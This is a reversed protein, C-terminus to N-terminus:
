LGSLPKTIIAMSLRMHGNAQTNVNALMVYIISALIVKCLEEINWSENYDHLESTALIASKLCFNFM